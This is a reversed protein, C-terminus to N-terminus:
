ATYPEKVPSMPGELETQRTDRGSPTAVFVEVKELGNMEEPKSIEKENGFKRQFMSVIEVPILPSVEQLRDYSERTNKLLDAPTMREERPLSMEISLFRYLKGYQIASIRHGEARKSWGFYSGTTNLVSVVLSVIGLSISAMTEHGAFMTSTGVSLFGVVSSLVIVPLDILTKRWSYFGEAQKHSWSLCHAKEATSAFYEELKPTWGVNDGISDSM